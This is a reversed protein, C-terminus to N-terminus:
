VLGIGGSVNNLDRRTHICGEAIVDPSLEVSRTLASKIPDVYVDGRFGFEESQLHSIGERHHFLITYNYLLLIEYDIEGGMLDRHSLVM